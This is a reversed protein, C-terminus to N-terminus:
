TEEIDGMHKQNHQLQLNHQQNDQPFYFSRYCTCRVWHGPEVERLIPNNEHESEPIWSIRTQFRCGAAPLQQCHRFLGKFSM